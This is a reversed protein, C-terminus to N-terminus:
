ASTASRVRLYLLGGSRKLEEFIAEKLDTENTDDRMTMARRSGGDIKAWIQVPTDPAPGLGFKCFPTTTDSPSVSTGL